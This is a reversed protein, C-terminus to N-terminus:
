EFRNPSGNWPDVIARTAVASEAVRMSDSEGRDQNRCRQLNLGKRDDSTTPEDSPDPILSANKKTAMVRTASAM